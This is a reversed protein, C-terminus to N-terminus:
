RGTRHVHARRRGDVGEAVDREGLVVPNLRDLVGTDKGVVSVRGIEGHLAVADAEGEDGRELVERGFLTGHQNEALHQPPRRRLDRLQEVRADRRDVARQLPCPCGERCAVVLGGGRHDAGVLLRQERAVDVRELPVVDGCQDCEQM